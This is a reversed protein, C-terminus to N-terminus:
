LSFASSLSHTHGPNHPNQYSKLHFTTTTDAPGHGNRVWQLVRNKPANPTDPGGLLADLPPQHDSYFVPGHRGIALQWVRVWCHLMGQCARCQVVVLVVIIFDKITRM